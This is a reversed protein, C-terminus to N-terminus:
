PCVWYALSTHLVSPLRGDESNPTSRASPLSDWLPVLEPTSVKKMELMKPRLERSWFVLVTSVIIKFFETLLVASSAHFQPRGDAKPQRSIHLVISMVSYEVTLAALAM